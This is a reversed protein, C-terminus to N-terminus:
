ILQPSNFTEKGLPKSGKVTSKELANCSMLSFCAASAGIAVKSEFGTVLPDPRKPGNILHFSIYM